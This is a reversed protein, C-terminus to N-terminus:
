LPHVLSPSSVHFPTAYRTPIDSSSSSSLQASMKDLPGGGPSDRTRGSRLCSPRPCWCGCGALVPPCVTCGSQVATGLKCPLGLPLTVGSSSWCSCRGVVSMLGLVRLVAAAPSGGPSGLRLLCAVPFLVWCCCSSSSGKIHSPSNLVMIMEAPPALLGMVNGGSIGLVHPTSMWKLLRGCPAHAPTAMAVPDLRAGSYRLM